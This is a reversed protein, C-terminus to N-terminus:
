SAYREEERAKREEAEKKQREKEKRREVEVNNVVPSFTGDLDFLHRAKSSAYDVPLRSSRTQANLDAGLDILRLIM